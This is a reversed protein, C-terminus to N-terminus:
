LAGTVEKRTIFPLLDEEFYVFYPFEFSSVPVERDGEEPLRTLAPWREDGWIASVLVPTVLFFKSVERRTVQGHLRRIVSVIQDNLPQSLACPFRKTKKQRAMSFRQSVLRTKKESSGRRFFLVPTKGQSNIKQLGWHGSAPGMGPVLINLMM